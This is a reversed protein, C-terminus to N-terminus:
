GGNVNGPGNSYPGARLADHIAKEFKKEVALIRNELREEMEAMREQMAERHGMIAIFEPGDVSGDNILHM